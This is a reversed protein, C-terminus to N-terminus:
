KRYEPLGMDLEAAIERESPPRGLRQELRHICQEMARAGRRASRPLWDRTRLEDIMAGRIRQSAYSLFSTGLSADYRGMADLLGVVGAQILDNLEVNAPLRAQLMLAQRRVAPLYESVVADQDFKGKVNYM